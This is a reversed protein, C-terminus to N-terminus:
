YELLTANPADAAEVPITTGAPAIIVSPKIIWVVCNVDPVLPVIVRARLPVANATAVTVPAPESVLMVNAGVLTVVARVHSLM